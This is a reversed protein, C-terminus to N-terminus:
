GVIPPGKNASILMLAPVIPPQASKYKLIVVTLYITCCASQLTFQHHGSHKLYDCINCFNYAQFQLQGIVKSNGILKDVRHKSHHHSAEVLPTGLFLLLLIGAVFVQLFRKLSFPHQYPRM